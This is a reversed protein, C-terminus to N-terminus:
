WVLHPIQSQFTRWSDGLAILSQPPPPNPINEGEERVEAWWFSHPTPDPVGSYLSMEAVLWM